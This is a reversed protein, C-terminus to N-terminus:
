PEQVIFFDMDLAVAEPRVHLAPTDVVIDQGALDIADLGMTLAIQEALANKFTDLLAQHDAVVQDDEEALEGSGKGFLVNIGGPTVRLARGVWAATMPMLIEAYGCSGGATRWVRFTVDFM